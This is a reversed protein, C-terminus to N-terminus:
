ILLATFPVHFSRLCPSLPTPKEELSPTLAERKETGWFVTQPEGAQPSQTFEQSSETNRMIFPSFTTNYQFCCKILSRTMKSPALWPSKAKEKKPSALHKLSEM